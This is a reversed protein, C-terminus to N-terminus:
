NVTNAKIHHGYKSSEDVFNIKCAVDVYVLSDCTKSYDVM